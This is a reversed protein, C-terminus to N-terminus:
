DYYERVPPSRQQLHTSYNPSHRQFEDRSRSNPQIGSPNRSLVQIEHRDWRGVVIRHLRGQNIELGASHWAESVSAGDEPGPSMYPHTRVTVPDSGRSSCTNQWRLNPGPSTVLNASQEEKKTKLLGKLQLAELIQKLAKLDKGTQKLGQDKLRKEIENYIWPFSNPTNSPVNEHQFPQQQSGLHADAASPSDPLQGLGMLKAVISSPPM